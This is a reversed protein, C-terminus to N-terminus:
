GARVMCQAGGHGWKKQEPVAREHLKGGMARMGILQGFGQIMPLMSAPGCVDLGTNKFM